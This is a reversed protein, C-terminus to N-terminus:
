PTFTQHPHSRTRPAPLNEGRRFTSPIGPSRTRAYGLFVATELCDREDPALSELADRLRKWDDLPM